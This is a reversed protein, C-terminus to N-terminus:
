VRFKGIVKRVSNKLYCREEENLVFLYSLPILAANVMVSTVLVRIFSAEMFMRTSSGLAGTIILLICAPSLVERLWVCMSMGAMYRAFVVRGLSCFVIPIMLALCIAHTGLGMYLFMVALPITLLLSTGLVAQYLAIRGIALVVIRHGVTSKDILLSFIMALCFISADPPPNKLWLLMVEDIELSLPVFFVMALLEGFKCARIAMRRMTSYDGAGCSQTIVPAFAGILANSLNGAQANVNNAVGISANITPGLSKNVVIAVGQGRLLSGLSGFLQWGAFAGLKRLRQWDFWYSKNLKCEPFVKFARYCILLQPVVFILCVGLSYCFLWEGEHTVMYYGFCVNFVTQVVSYATLEAIYQKATYMATFPVNIMGIFCSVCAFRFVWVCTEVRDAPIVLWNRVAYMGLPYGMMILCLPVAVHVMVATNFWRRCEELGSNDSGNMAAGISYAYFRGMAGALLQNIFAIFVTLGGVVGFLGYDVPGLAMLVWRGSFLGCAVALVSRGYTAVINLVIRKNETM